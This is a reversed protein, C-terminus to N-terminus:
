FLESKTFVLPTQSHPTIFVFRDFIKNILPNIFDM